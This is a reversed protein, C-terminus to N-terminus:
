EAGGKEIRDAEREFDQAACILALGQRPNEYAMDRLKQAAERMTEAKLRVLSQAPTEALLKKVRAILGHQSNQRFRYRAGKDMSVDACITANDVDQLAARLAEIHAELEAICQESNM